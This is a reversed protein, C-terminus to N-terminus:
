VYLMLVRSVKTRSPSLFHQEGDHVATSEKSVNRPRPVPKVQSSCRVTHQPGNIDILLESTMSQPLVVQTSPRQPAPKSPKYDILTESSSAISDDQKSGSRWTVLSSTHMHMVSQRPKQKVKMTPKAAVPPKPAVKPKPKIIPKARTVNALGNSTFDDKMNCVHLSSHFGNLLSEGNTQSSVHSAGNIDFSLTRTSSSTTVDDMTMTIVPTISQYPRPKPAPKDCSVIRPRPQPKLSQKVFLDDKPFNATSADTIVTSKPIFATRPRAVPKKGNRLTVGSSSNTETGKQVTVLSGIPQRMFQNRSTTLSVEPQQMFHKNNTHSNVANKKEVQVFSKPFIGCKGNLRGEFWDENVERVVVILEDVKFKLDGVKDGNFNFVARVMMEPEAGSSPARILPTTHNIPFVGVANRTEGRSWTPDITDLVKVIDGDKITLEDKRAATFPYIVKVFNEESEESMSLYNVFSKEVKVKWCTEVFRSCGNLILAAVQFTHLATFTSM